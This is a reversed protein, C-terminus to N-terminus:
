CGCKMKAAARAGGLDEKTPSPKVDKKDSPEPSTSRGALKKLFSSGAPGFDVVADNHSASATGHLRDVVDAM